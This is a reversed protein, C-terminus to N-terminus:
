LGWFRRKRAKWQKGRRRLMEQPASVLHAADDIGQPTTAMGKGLALEASPTGCLMCDQALSCPLLVVVSHVENSSPPELASVVLHVWAWTAVPFSTLLNRGSCPAKKAGRRSVRWIRLPDTAQIQPRHHFPFAIFRHIFSFLPPIPPISRPLTSLPPTIHYLPFCSIGPQLHSECSPPRCLCVACRSRQPLLLLLLLLLVISFRIVAPLISGTTWVVDHHSQWKLDLDLLARIEFSALDPSTDLHWFM